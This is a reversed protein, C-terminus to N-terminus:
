RPTHVTAQRRGVSTAANLLKPFYAVPLAGRNWLIAEDLPWRVCLSPQQERFHRSDLNSWSRSRVCSVRAHHVRTWPGDAISESRLICLICATTGCWRLMISCQHLSTWLTSSFARSKRSRPPTTQWMCTSRLFSASPATLVRLGHVPRWITRVDATAAVYTVGTNPVHIPFVGNIADGVM